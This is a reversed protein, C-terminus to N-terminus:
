GLERRGGLSGRRGTGAVERRLDSHGELTGAERFGSSSRRWKRWYAQPAQNTALRNYNLLTLRPKVACKHPIRMGLPHLQWREKRQCKGGVWAGLGFYPAEGLCRFFHAACASASRPM